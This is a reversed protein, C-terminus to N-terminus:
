FVLTARRGRRQWSQLRGLGKVRGGAGQGRGGQRVEARRAAEREGPGEAGGAGGLVSFDARLFDTVFYSHPLLLLRESFHLSHEPPAVVADFAAWDVFEAGTSGAFGMYNIIIPAPRFALAGMAHGATWGNLDVLLHAQKANIARAQHATAGAGIDATEVCGEPVDGGAEGAGAWKGEAAAPLGRTSFCIVHFAVRDHGQFVARMLLMVSHRRGFESCVYGVVVKKRPRRAGVLGGTGWGAGEGAQWRLLRAVSAQYMRMSVSKPVHWGRAYARTAALVEAPGVLLPAPGAAAAPALFTLAMFPDVPLPSPLLYDLEGAIQRRILDAAIERDRALSGWGCLRRRTYVLNAAAVARQPHSSALAPHALARELRVVSGHLDEIETLASAMNIDTAWSGQRLPHARALRYEISRLTAIAERPHSLDIFAAAVNNALDESLPNLRLAALWARLAGVSDGRAYLASGVAFFLDSDNAGCSTLASTLLGVSTELGGHGDEGRAFVRLAEEKEPCREGVAVAVNVVAAAVVLHAVLRAGAGVSTVSNRHARRGARLLHQESRPHATAGRM